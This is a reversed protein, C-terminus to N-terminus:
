LKRNSQHNNYSISMILNGLFAVRKNKLRKSCKNKCKAEKSYCLMVDIYKVTLILVHRAPITNYSPNQIHDSFKLIKEPISFINTRNYLNFLKHVKSQIVDHCLFSNLKIRNMINSQQIM